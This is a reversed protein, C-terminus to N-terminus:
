LDWKRRGEAEIISCFVSLMQAAKIKDIFPDVRNVDFQRKLFQLNIKLLEELQYEPYMVSSIQEDSMGSSKLYNKVQETKM